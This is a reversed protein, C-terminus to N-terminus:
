GKLAARLVKGEQFVDSAFKRVAEKLDDGSLSDFGLTSWDFGQFRTTWTKLFKKALDPNGKLNNSVSRGLQKVEKDWLPRSPDKVVKKLGDILGDLYKETDAMVAARKELVSSIVEISKDIKKAAGDFFISNLQLSVRFLRAEKSIEAAVSASGKTLANKKLTQEAKKATDELNSLADVTPKVSKEM